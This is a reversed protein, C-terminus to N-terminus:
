SILGMTGLYYEVKYLFKFHIQKLKYIKMNKDRATGKKRSGDTKNSIDQKFNELLALSHHSKSKLKKVLWKEIM